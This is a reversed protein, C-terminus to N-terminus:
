YVPHEPRLEGGALFNQLEVLNERLLYEYYWHHFTRLAKGRQYARRLHGWYEPFFAAGVFAAALAYASRKGNGVLCWQLEVEEPASLGYGLLTHFVDHNEFGPMLNLDNTVLFRGLRQGLSGPPLAELDDRQLQWQPRPRRSVLAYLPYSQKQLYDLLQSRLGHLPLRLSFVSSLPNNKNM